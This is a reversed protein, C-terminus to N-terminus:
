SPRAPKSISSREATVPLLSYSSHPCCRGGNAGGPLPSAEFAHPLADNYIVGVRDPDVGGAEFAFADGWLRPRRNGSEVPSAYEDPGGHPVFGRRHTGNAGVKDSDRM